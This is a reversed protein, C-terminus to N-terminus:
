VSSAVFPSRVKHKWNYWTFSGFLDESSSTTTLKFTVQFTRKEMNKTFKLKNPVVKVQLGAPAEVSAMYTSYVEGVNTVTRKVTRTENAKLGSVAVSPYNMDSIFHSSSNTPCSFNNPITSSIIKIMSTDYGMNCLFQVYDTTKTEYVLGPCLPGFLNIEGSGIDYPTAISGDDTTIPAHRNNRQTATTMIASKIASPSWTPNWSKVRAALGSVHPCAM